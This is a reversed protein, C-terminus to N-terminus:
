AHARDLFALTIYCKTVSGTFPCRQTKTSVNAVCCPTIVHTHTRTHTGEKIETTSPQQCYLSKFLAIKFKKMNSTLKILTQQLEWKSWPVTFWQYIFEETHTWPSIHLHVTLFFSCFCILRFNTHRHTHSLSRSLSLAHVSVMIDVYHIMKAHFLHPHQTDTFKQMQTAQQNLWM